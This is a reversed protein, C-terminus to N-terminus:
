LYFLSSMDSELGFTLLSISRSGTAQYYLIFFFSNKIGNQGQYSIHWDFHETLIQGQERFICLGSINTSQNTWFMGHIDVAFM